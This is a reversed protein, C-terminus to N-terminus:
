LLHNNPRMRRSQLKNTDGERPWAHNVGLIIYVASGLRLPGRARCKLGHVHLCPSIVGGKGWM